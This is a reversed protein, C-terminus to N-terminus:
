PRLRFPQEGTTVTRLDPLLADARWFYRAGPDLSAAIESPLRIESDRIDSTWLVGGLSDLLAVRYLTGEEAALWRLVIESSAPVDGVPSLPRLSSSPQEVGPRSRMPEVRDSADPPNVFLLVSAAAAAALGIAPARWRLAARRDPRERVLREGTTLEDLCDSCDALHAEIQRREAPRLSGDLYAALEETTLHIKEPRTM